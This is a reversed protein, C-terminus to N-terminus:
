DLTDTMQQELMLNILNIRDVDEPTVNTEIVRRFEGTLLMEITKRLNHKDLSLILNRQFGVDSDGYKDTYIVGFEKSFSIELDMVEILTARPGSIHMYVGIGRKPCNLFHEDTKELQGIVPDHSNDKLRTIRGCMLCQGIVADTSLYKWNENNTLINHFHEPLNPFMFENCPTPFSFFEEGQKEEIVYKNKFEDFTDLKIEDQKLNELNLLLSTRRVFVEFLSYDFNTAAGLKNWFETVIPRVDELKKEFFRLVFLTFVDETNVPEEPIVNFGARVLQVIGNILRNDDFISPDTRATLEVLAINYAIIQHFGVGTYNSIMQSFLLVRTLYEENPKEGTYVPIVSNVLTRDLPCRKHHEELSFANELPISLGEEFCKHHAWHGCTRIQSSIPYRDIRDGAIVREANNLINTMYIDAILGYSNDSQSFPEQCFVCTFTDTNENDLGSIEELNAQAFSNQAQAFQAMIANKDLPKRKLRPEEIHNSLFEKLKTFDDPIELSFNNIVSSGYEEKKLLLLLKELINKKELIFDENKHVMICVRILALICRTLMYSSKNPSKISVTLIRDILEYLEDTLLYRHINVLPFPNELPLLNLLKTKNAEEEKDFFKNVDEQTFFSAFMTIKDYYEPKLTLTSGNQGRQINAIKLVIEDFKYSDPACILCKEYSKERTNYLYVYHSIVIALNEFNEINFNGFISDCSVQVLTIILKKMIEIFRSCETVDNEDFSEYQSIEFVEALIAVISGPDEAAHFCIQLPAVESIISFTLKKLDGNRVFQDNAIMSITALHVAMFNSLAEFNTAGIRKLLMAPDLNLHMSIYILTRMLTIYDCNVIDFTQSYPRIFPLVKHFSTDQMPIATIKPKLNEYFANLIQDILNLVSDNIDGVEREVLTEFPSTDLETAILCASQAFLDALSYMFWVVQRHLIFSKDQPDGQGVRKLQFASSFIHMFRSFESLFTSKPNKIASCIIIVENLFLTILGTYNFFLDAKFSNGDELMLELSVDNFEDRFQTSAFADNLSKIMRGVLDVEADLNLVAPIDRLVQSYVSFSDILEKLYGNETLPKTFEICIEPIYKCFNDSFHKSAVIFFMFGTFAECNPPNIREWQRLIKIYPIEPFSGEFLHIALIDIYFSGWSGITNFLKICRRFTNKHVQSPMYSYIAIVVDEIRKVIEPSVTCSSVTDRHLPCWSEPKICSDGCDCLSEDSVYTNYHHGEHDKENFCKSCILDSKSTSCERCHFYLKCEAGGVTCKTFKANEKMDKSFKAFKTYGEPKMHRKCLKLGHKCGSQLAKYLYDVNSMLLSSQSKECSIWIHM